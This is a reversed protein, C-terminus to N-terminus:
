LAAPPARREARPREAAPPDHTLHVRKSGGHAVLLTLVRLRAAANRPRGQDALPSKRRGGRQQGHLGKTHKQTREERARDQLQHRLESARARVWGTGLGLNGGGGSIHDVTAAMKATICPPRYTNGSVMTGIRGTQDGAGARRADDLEGP